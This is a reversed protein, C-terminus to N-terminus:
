CMHVHVVCVCMINTVMVKTGGKRVLLENTQLLSAIEEKLKIITDQARTRDARETEFDEKYIVVKMVCLCVGMECCLNTCTSCKTHVYRLM